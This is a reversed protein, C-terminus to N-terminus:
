CPNQFNFIENFFAQIQSANIQCTHNSYPKVPQLVRFVGVLVSSRYPKGSFEISPLDWSSSAVITTALIDMFAGLIGLFEFFIGLNRIFNEFNV